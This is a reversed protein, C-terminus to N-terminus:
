LKAEVLAATIILDKGLAKAVDPTLFGLMERMERGSYATVVVHPIAQSTCTGAGVAMKMIQDSQAHRAFHKDVSVYHDVIAKYIAEVNNANAISAEIMAEIAEVPAKDPIIVHRSM